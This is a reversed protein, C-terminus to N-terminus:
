AKSKLATKLEGYFSLLFHLTGVYEGAGCHVAKGLSKEKLKM